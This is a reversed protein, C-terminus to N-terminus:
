RLGNVPARYPGRHRIRVTAEIARQVSGGRSAVM